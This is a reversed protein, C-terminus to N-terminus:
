PVIAPDLWAPDPATYGREVLKAKWEEDSMRQWDDQTFQHYAFSVGAYARPGSCTDVSVVMLRPMGTAVHLIRGVENGAEDTFQTHVDAVTPEFDLARELDFFLESYWGTLFAPGGCGRETKVATNIFAMQRANFATGARQFEAMEQLTFATTRLKQFYGAVRSALPANGFTAALAQGREAFAVLRAFFQPYPDVYADPYECSIGTSYSQKVALVNDRRLEAWSGLQANLLRRGWAESGALEPMGLLSNADSRPSLQRLASLWLNYMSGNWFEPGHADSLVRMQGLPGAYGYTDIESELLGLAQDNGLAAFAVDLPDPLMRPQPNPQVRDFVVNSFVHSDLTYRQGLLLFSRSLPLTHLDATGNMMLQSAIQQEGYGGRTIAAALEADDRDRAAAVNPLRLEAQLQQVDDLTMNDSEGVFARYSDDLRRYSREADGLLGRLALAAEFPRRRFLTSGDELTEILRLEIRGLWMMARFYRQLTPSQTYHGRPKFQSFDVDQPAGFLTVSQHASASTAIQSWAAVQGADAGAVPAAAEGDLLSLPVALYFDLDKALAPELPAAGLNARLGSLLARLEQSLQTEELQMLIADYSRHVAELISDASVYLPLDERYIESYGDGFTPFVRSRSIVFGRQKLVELEVRSLSMGSRQILDLHLASSADYSLSAQPEFPHQARLEEFSQPAELQPLLENLATLAQESASVQVATGPELPTGNPNPSPEATGSCAFTGLIPLWCLSRVHM